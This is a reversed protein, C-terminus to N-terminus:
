DNNNERIFRTPSGAVVVNDPVNRIVVSGSGIISDCGITLQGNVVSCSGVFTRSGVQVDGNLVTNTSINSCCGIVNGHEILARTNIVVADSIKTDSNVICMKGIYVGLGININHHSLIATKDIINILRLGKDIIQNYFMWRTKPHGVGIFYVYDNCQEIDNLSNFLIPYGQHEGKKYTDVFGIFDYLSYDLSGLISKSFGGAGIIILKKKM